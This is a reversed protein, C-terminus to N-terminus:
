EEVISDITTSNVNVKERLYFHLIASDNTILYANENFVKWNILELYIDNLDNRLQDVTHPM